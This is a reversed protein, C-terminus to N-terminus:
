NTVTIRFNHVRGEADRTSLILLCPQSPATFCGTTTHQIVRGSIDIIEACLLGLSSLDVHQSCHWTLDQIRELPSHLGDADEETLRLNGDADIASLDLQCAHLEVDGRSFLDAGNTAANGELTCYELRGGTAYIGGGRGEVSPSSCERVPRVKCYQYTNLLIYQMGTFDACGAAQMGNSSSASSSWLMKGWLAEAHRESLTLEALAYAPYTAASQPVLYKLETGTPLRWDTLGGGKYTAVLEKARAFQHNRGVGDMALVLAKGSRLSFIVGGEKQAYEGIALTGANNQSITCHSLICGKRIVAGAGDSGTGETLTFGDWRTETDFDSPQLLVRFRGDGSLITQSDLSSLDRDSAQLEDGRFGGLLTVGQRMIFGGTYTGASVFVTDGPQCLDITQQLNPSASEWSTGDMQGSGSPTVHHRVGAHSTLFLCSALIFLSFRNM